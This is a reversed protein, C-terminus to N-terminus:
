STVLDQKRDEIYIPLTDELFHLKRENKDFYILSVLIAQNRNSSATLLTQNPSPLKLGKFLNSLPFASNPRIRIDSFEPLYEEGQVIWLDIISSTSPRTEYKEWATLLAVKIKMVKLHICQESFPQDLRIPFKISLRLLNDLVMGPYALVRNGVRRDINGNVSLALQLPTSIYYYPQNFSDNASKLCIKKAVSFELFSSLEIVNEENTRVGVSIRIGYSRRLRESFFTPGLEPLM